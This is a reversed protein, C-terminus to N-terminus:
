FFRHAKAGPSRIRAKSSCGEPALARKKEEVKEARSFGHGKLVSDVTDQFAIGKSLSNMAGFPCKVAQVDQGKLAFAPGPLPLRTTADLGRM